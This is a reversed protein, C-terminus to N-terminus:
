IHILSLYPVVRTPWFFAVGCVLLGLCPQQISGEDKRRLAIVLEVNYARRLKTSPRAQPLQQAESPGPVSGGGGFLLDGSLVSPFPLPPCLVPRSAHQNLHVIQGTGHDM